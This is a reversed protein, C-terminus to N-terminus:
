LKLDGISALCLMVLEYLCVLLEQELNSGIPLVPLTAEQIEKGVIYTPSVSEALFEKM